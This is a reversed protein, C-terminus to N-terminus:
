WVFMDSKKLKLAKPGVNNQCVTVATIFLAQMHKRNHPVSSLQPSSVHHDMYLKLGEGEVKRTLRLVTTPIPM